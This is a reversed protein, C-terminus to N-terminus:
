GFLTVTARRVQEACVGFLLHLALEVGEKSRPQRRPSPALGLAPVVLVHAGLWVGAGFALGGGARAMPSAAAVVGQILGTSAGFGYHVVSAAAPKADEPLPAHRFTRSLADAVKVTADDERQDAPSPELPLVRGLATHAVSMAAAGVLGGLFGGVVSAVLARDRM